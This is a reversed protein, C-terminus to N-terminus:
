KERVRSPEQQLGRGDGDAVALPLGMPISHTFKLRSVGRPLRSSVKAGGATGGGVAGSVKALETSSRTACTIALTSPIGPSPLTRLLAITCRSEVHADELDLIGGLQHRGQEADGAMGNVQMDAIQNPPVPRVVIVLGMRAGHTHSM